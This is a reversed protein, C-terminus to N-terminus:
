SSERVPDLSDFSDVDVVVVEGWQWSPKPALLKAFDQIDRPVRQIRPADNGKHIHDFLVLGQPYDLLWDEEKGNKKKDIAEGPWCLIEELIICDWRFGEQGLQHGQRSELGPTSSRVLGSRGEIGQTLLEKKMEKKFGWSM